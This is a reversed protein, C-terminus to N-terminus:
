KIKERIRNSIKQYVRCCKCWLNVKPQIGELLRRCADEPRCFQMTKWDWYLPYLILVGAILEDITLFELSKLKAWKDTTLGWGSYFPRGYTTVEKNRCLGEFGTLSTLTHIENIYPWLSELSTKKVVVDVCDALFKSPIQGMRNGSEVDPHPKYVVFAEPNDQRVATLLQLNSQIAGGGRRVSADGDVQGPVLIVRKGKAVKVWDPELTSLTGVNYKTLHNRVILERLMQARKVLLDHDPRLRMNRLINEVQSPNAPDYYIGEPDLILSYPYNYDSGLGVSRLFGDEMRTLRIGERHAKAAVDDSCSGAWGAWMVAEAGTERARGLGKEVNWVFEVTSDTGSLFAKAHPQKWRRFGICVHRGRNRENAARQAALIELVEQASCREGSFPNVYRSLKLVAAAFLGEVTPKAWRRAFADSVTRNGKESHDITLGWGSYFPVGFVHVPKNILLAEFGMQSTVVYVADFAQMFSFPAWNESVLRVNEPVERLYGKKKGAIVDPHTKVFVVANEEHLATNLMRRFSSEDAGGLRVSADGATQDVVLIMRSHEPVSFRKRFSRAAEETFSPSANYKSLDSSRILTLADEVAKQVDPTFWSQWDNLLREIESPAGADYYVGIPDVTISLPPAGDAGLKLSRYFGDELAIYPLNNERAYARAKDATPKHGWGVVAQPVSDPGKSREFGELAGYLNREPELFQPLSSIRRIGPSFVKILVDESRFLRRKRSASM